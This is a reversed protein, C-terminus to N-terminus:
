APNTGHASTPIICIEKITEEYVGHTSPYTVMLAGLKDKHKECKARLEEVDINGDVDVGTTVVEMGAMVASAPNTGHASTPIICIDRCSDGRSEHYARISMLGAYEGSAGSNPQLSVADFETIDCLMEAFEGLMKHYGQAQDAPVFPHLNSLGEYTIPIMESTANLKMTCSGLAIMSHALSLDKNETRKLYRLMEHESHFSNFLDHTLYPSVRSLQGFQAVELKRINCGRAVAAAVAADADPVAVRVTDFFTGPASVGELGLRRAGEAFVAALAHTREAIQRLGDPGHYMAYLASINALLAQATCINSTAKDRRIHQERTQMAMRLAPKGTNDKSKGIVRGPMKRSM